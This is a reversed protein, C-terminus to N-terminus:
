NHSNGRKKEKEKAGDDYKVIVISQLQNKLLPPLQSIAKERHKVRSKRPLM